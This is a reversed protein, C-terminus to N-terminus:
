WRCNTTHLTVFASAYELIAIACCNFVIVPVISLKGYVCWIRQASYDVILSETILRAEPESMVQNESKYYVVNEFNTSNNVDLENGSHTWSIFVIECNQTDFPFYKVNLTCYTKILAPFM